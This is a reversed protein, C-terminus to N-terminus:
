LLSMGANYGDMFYTFACNTADSAYVNPIYMDKTLNLKNRDFQQRTVAKEFEKIIDTM